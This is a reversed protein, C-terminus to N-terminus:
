KLLMEQLGPVRLRQFVGGKKNYLVIENGIIESHDLDTFEETWIGRLDVFVTKLGGTEQKSFVVIGWCQPGSTGIFLCIVWSGTPNALSKKPSSDYDSYKGFPLALKLGELNKFELALKVSVGSPLDLVMDSSPKTVSTGWTIKLPPSKM